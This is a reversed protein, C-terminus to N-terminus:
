KKWIKTNIQQKNNFQPTSVEFPPFNVEFKSKKFDHFVFTKNKERWYEDKKKIHFYGPTFNLNYATPNLFNFKFQVGLHELKKIKEHPAPITLHRNKYWGVGFYSDFAAATLFYFHRGNDHLEFRFTTFYFKKGLFFAFHKWDKQFFMKIKLNENEKILFVKKWKTSKGHLFEVTEYENTSILESESIDNYQHSYDSTPRNIILEHMGNERNRISMSPQDKMTKSADMKFANLYKASFEIELFELGYKDVAHDLFANFDSVFYEKGM